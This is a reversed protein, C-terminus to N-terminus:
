RVLAVAINFAVSIAVCNLRYKTVHAAVRATVDTATTEVDEIFQEEENLQRRARGAVVDVGGSVVLREELRRLNVSGHPAAATRRVVAAIPRSAAVAVVIQRDFVVGAKVKGVLQHQPTAGPRCGLGVGTAPLVASRAAGRRGRHEVNLSEVVVVVVSVDDGNM